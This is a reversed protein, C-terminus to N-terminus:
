LIKLYKQTQISLKWIPNKKIYEIVANSNTTGDPYTVPQLYKKNGFEKWNDIITQLDPNNLDYIIKLELNNRFSNGKLDLVEPFKPSVTICRYSGPLYPLLTGNTEMHLPHGLREIMAILECDVQLCPEGGTFCIPINSVKKIEYEKLIEQIKRYITPGTMFKGEQHETDCFSCKLNCGSFRIFIMPTGSWYGEGQISYFIENIKYSSM